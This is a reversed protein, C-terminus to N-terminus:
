YEYNIEMWNAFYDSNSQSPVAQTKPLHGHQAPTGLACARPLRAIQMFIPM